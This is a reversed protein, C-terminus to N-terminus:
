RTAASRGADRSDAIPRQQLRRSAPARETEIAARDLVIIKRRRRCIHGKDCLDKLVRSVMERSAAVLQAIQESGPEVVWEGEVEHSCEILVHTVREYVDLLALDQIKRDASRLRELVAGLIQMAANFNDTFCELFPRKPIFLIECPEVAQVTNWRCREDLLSSEGFFENPSVFNLIVERGEGDEILVKARGSLVVYLGDARDGARAIRGGKPYRRRQSAASLRILDDDTFSSFLPIWKLTRLDCM